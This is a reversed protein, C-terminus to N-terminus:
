LMGSVYNAIDGFGINSSSDKINMTMQNGNSTQQMSAMAQNIAATAFDRGRSTSANVNIIYSQPQSKTTASPVASPMEYIANESQIGQAQGQAPTPSTPAGAVTGAMMMAGAFGLMAKAGGHNLAAGITRFTGRVVDDIDGALDNIAEKSVREDDGYYRGTFASNTDVLLPVDEHLKAREPLLENAIADADSKPDAGEGKVLEPRMPSQAYGVRHENYWEVNLAKGEPLIRDFAQVIRDFSIFGDAEPELGEQIPLKALEKIGGNDYMTKLMDMFPQTNRVRKENAGFFDAIANGMEQMSFMNTSTSNKTAQYADNLHEGIHAVIHHDGAQFNTVKQDVMDSVVDKLRFVNMNNLGADGKAANTRIQEVNADIATSVGFVNALHEAESGRFQQLYANTVGADNLDLAAGYGAKQINDMQEKSLQHDKDAHSNHQEMFSRFDDGRVINEFETVADIRQQRTTGAVSYLNGNVRIDEHAHGKAVADEMSKGEDSRGVGTQTANASIDAAGRAADMLSGNDKFQIDISKGNQKALAELASAEVGSIRGKKLAAESEGNIYVNAQERMANAYAIDGDKDLKMMAAASETMIMENSAINANYFIHMAQVSGEYEMPQRLGIGITGKQASAILQSVAEKEDKETIQDASKYGKIKALTDRFDEGKVMNEFYDKGVFVANVRHGAELHKALSVGDVEYDKLLQNASVRTKLRDKEKLWDDKFKITDDLSAGTETRLIGGKFMGSNPLYGSTLNEIAGRKSGTEEIVKTKADEIAEQMADQIGGEQIARDESNGKLLNYQGQIKRALSRTGTSSYRGTGNENDMVSSPQAGIAIFQDGVQLIAARETVNNRNLASDARTDFEAESIDIVRNGLLGSKTYYDLIEQKQAATTARSMEDNFSIAAKGSAYAFQHKVTDLGVVDYGRKNYSQVIKEAADKDIGMGALESYLHEDNGRGFQLHPRTGAVVEEKMNRIISANVKSNEAGEEMTMELKGDKGRRVSAIGQYEKNFQAEADYRERGISQEFREMSEMVKTLGPVDITDEGAAVIMRRSVKIGGKGGSNYRGEDADDIARVEAIGFKQDIKGNKDYHYVAGIDQGEIVAHGFGDKGMTVQVQPNKSESVYDPHFDAMVENFKKENFVTVNGVSFSENNVQMGVVSRGDADTFVREDDFRQRIQNSAEAFDVNNPVERGAKKAKARALFTVAENIKGQAKMVEMHSGKVSELETASVIGVHQGKQLAGGAVLAEEFGAWTRARDEKIAAVFQDYHKEDLENFGAAKLVANTRSMSNYVNPSLFLPLASEIEEKSHGLAESVHSGNLQGLAPTMFKAMAKETDMGIKRYPLSDISEIAYKETLGHGKLITNITNNLDARDNKAVAQLEEQHGALIGNIEADGVERGDSTYYRRKLFGAREAVQKDPLGAFSEEWSFTDGRGVLIDETSYGFTINGKADRGIIAKTKRDIEMQRNSADRGIMKHLTDIDLVKDTRERQQINRQFLGLYEPNIIAGSEGIFTYFQDSAIGLKKMVDQAGKTALVQELREHTMALQGTRFSKIDESAGRKAAEEGTLVISDFRTIDGLTTGEIAAKVQEVNQLKHSRMFVQAMNRDDHGVEALFPLGSESLSVLGNEPHRLDITNIHDLVDQFQRWGADNSGFVDRSLKSNRNKLPDLLRDLDSYIAAIETSSLKVEEVLAGTARQSQNRWRDMLTQLLERTRDALPLSNGNGDEYDGRSAYLGLRKFFPMLDLFNGQRVDQEDFKTFSQDVISDLAQRTFFDINKLNQKDSRKPSNFFRTQEELARAYVEVLSRAAYGKDTEENLRASLAFRQVTALNRGGVKTEFQGTKENFEDFPLLHTIDLVDGESNMLEFKFTGKDTYRYTLHRNKEYTNGFLVELFDRTDSLRRDRRDLIRTAEGKQIVKGNADVVDDSYGYQLLKEKTIGNTNEFLRNAVIEALKKASKKKNDFRTLSPSNAIEEASTEAMKQLGGEGLAERLYSISLPAKKTDMLQIGTIMGAEPHERRVKRLKNVILQQLFDQSYPQNGPRGLGLLANRLEDDGAGYQRYILVGLDHLSAMIDSQVNKDRGLASALRAGFSEGVNLKVAFSNGIKSSLNADRNMKGGATIPTLDLMFSDKEGRTMDLTWSQRGLADDVGLKRVNSGAIERVKNARNTLDALMNEYIEKFYFAQAATNSGALKKAQRRAISLIPAMESTWGTTMAYNRLFNPYRDYKADGKNKMVRSINGVLKDYAKRENGQLSQHAKNGYKYADLMFDVAANRQDVSLLFTSMGFFKQSFTNLARHMALIGGAKRYDMDRLWNGATEETVVRGSRQGLKKTDYRYYAKGDKDYHITAYENRVSQDVDSADLAGQADADLMAAEWEAQTWSNPDDYPSAAFPRYQILGTQHLRDLYDHQWNAHWEELERLPNLLTGRSEVLQKILFDITDRANSSVRLGVLNKEYKQKFRQYPKNKRLYDDHLINFKRKAENFQIYVDDLQDRIGSYQDALDMYQSYAEPIPEGDTFSWTGGKPVLETMQQSIDNKQEKLSAIQDGLAKKADYAANLADLAKDRPAKAAKKEKKSAWTDHKYQKYKAFIADSYNVFDDIAASIEDLSVKQNTFPNMKFGEAIKKLIETKKANYEENHAAREVLFEAKTSRAEPDFRNVADMVYKPILGRSYALQIDRQNQELADAIVKRQYLLHDNEMRQKYQLAYMRRDFTGLYTNDQMYNRIQEKTGIQYYTNRTKGNDGVIGYKVAYLETGPMVAGTQQFANLLAQVHEDESDFNLRVPDALVVAMTGKKPGHSVIDNKFQGDYGVRVHGAYRIEGSTGDQVFSFPASKGSFQGNNVFFAAGEKIEHQRGAYVFISEDTVEPLLQAPGNLSDNLSRIKKNIREKEKRGATSWQNIMAVHTIAQMIVDATATHKQGADLVGAVGKKAAEYGKIGLYALSNGTSSNFTQGELQARAAEAGKGLVFGKSVLGRGISTMDLQNTSQQLSGTGSTLYGFYARAGESAWGGFGFMAEIQRNDYSMANTSVMTLGGDKAHKWARAINGLIDAEHQYMEYTEGFANVKVKNATTASYIDGLEKVGKRVAASYKARDARLANIEEDSAYSDLVARNGEMHWSGLGFKAMEDLKYGHEKWDFGKWGTQKEGIKNYEELMGLLRGQVSKDLGVIGAVMANKVQKYDTGIDMNVTSFAYQTIYDGVGELDYEIFKHHKDFINSFAKREENLDGFVAFEKTSTLNIAEVNALVGNMLEVGSQSSKLKTADQNFIGLLRNTFGSSAIQEYAAVQEPTAEEANRLKEAAATVANWNHNLLYASRQRGQVLSAELDRSFEKHKDERTKADWDKGETRLKDQWLEEHLKQMAEISRLGSVYIGDTTATNAM